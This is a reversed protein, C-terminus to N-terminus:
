NCAPAPAFKAKYRSDRQFVSEGGFSMCFTEDGLTLAIGVPDPNTALSFDLQRGVGTIETNGANMVTVTRIPGVQEDNDRYRYGKNKGPKGIYQWRSAPLVYTYDEASDGSTVLRVKAGYLTPDGTSGNQTGTSFNVTGRTKVKLGFMSPNQANVRLLLSTGFITQTCALSTGATCQGNECREVGNCVDADTCPTDNAVARSVCGIGQKCVDRTCPNGDDCIVPAHQCGALPDCTDISCDNGDNCQLPTGPVCVGGHCTEVGNCVNGDGCGTGDARAVHACVGPPTCVDNTCPNHDDCNLSGCPVTVITTSTTTTVITTTVPPATTSTDTTSTDTTSTSTDTTSTSTDTTSTSTDTTSTAVVVTTSTAPTCLGVLCIEGLLCDADIICTNLAHSRVPSALTAWVVALFAIVVKVM